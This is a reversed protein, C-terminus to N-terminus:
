IVVGYKSLTDVPAKLGTDPDIVVGANSAAQLVMKKKMDSVSESSQNTEVDSGGLVMVVVLKGNRNFAWGYQALYSNLYNKALRKKLGAFFGSGYSNNIEQLRKTAFKKLVDFDSSGRDIRGKKLDDLM